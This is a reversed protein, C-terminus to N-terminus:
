TAEDDFPPREGSTLPLEGPRAGARTREDAEIDELAELVHKRIQVRPDLDRLRLDSYEPGLEDRLESQARKAFNKAGHLFRAAQRALDPMRDPGFVVVGILAIVFLEQLGIGFM